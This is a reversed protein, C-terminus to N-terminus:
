IFHCILDTSLLMQLVNAVTCVQHCAREFKQKMTFSTNLMADLYNM